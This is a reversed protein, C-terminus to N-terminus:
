EPSVVDVGIFWIVVTSCWEPPSSPIPLLSHHLYQSSTSELLSSSSLLIGSSWSVTPPRRSIIASRLGGPDAALLRDYLCAVVLGVGREFASLRHAM